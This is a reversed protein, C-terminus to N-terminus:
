QIPVFCRTKKKDREIYIQTSVTKENEAFSQIRTSKRYLLM